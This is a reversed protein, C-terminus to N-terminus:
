SRRPRATTSRRQNSTNAARRLPAMMTRAARRQGTEADVVAPEGPSVGGYGEQGLEDGCQGGVGLPVMLASGDRSSGPGYSRPRRSPDLARQRGRPGGASWTAPLEGVAAPTPGEDTLPVTGRCGRDGGPATARTLAVERPPGLFSYHVAGGRGGLGATFLDLYWPGFIGDVVVTYGGIALEPRRGRLGAPVSTRLRRSRPALPSPGRVIHDLVLRVGRLRGTSADAVLRAM